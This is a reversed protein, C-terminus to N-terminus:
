RTVGFGIRVRAQRRDYDLLSEGYGAFGQAVIYLQPGSSWMRTLPYSLTGDVAGKGSGVNLRSTLALRLGDDEGFAAYLGTRGRYREIDENGERGGVYAWVRPGLTLTFRGVAMSAEPQVYLTNLTRSRLGSLGNSEHRAGLRGGISLGNDNVSRPPVLYFLEPMYNVDRFPSSDRELDWFMRQTYAFTVGDLWNGREGFLRYKLSIQIRGATGTGPGYVFYMPEYASLNALFPNDKPSGTSPPAPATSVSIAQSTASAVRVSGAASAEESIELAISPADPVSLSLMGSGTGVPLEGAYRISAFGSAAITPRTAQGDVRRLTVSDRHGNAGQLTAAITDPAAFDAAVGSSNMAVVELALQGGTAVQAGSVILRVPPAAIAGPAAFLALGAFLLCRM